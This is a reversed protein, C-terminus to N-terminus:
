EDVALEAADKAIQIMKRRKRIAKLEELEARREKQCKDMGDWGELEPEGERQRNRMDRKLREDYALEECPTRAEEEETEPYVEQYVHHKAPFAVATVDDRYRGTSANEYNDEKKGTQGTMVKPSQSGESNEERPKCDRIYKDRTMLAIRAAARIPRRQPIM